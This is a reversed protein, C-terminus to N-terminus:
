GFTSSKLIDDPGYREENEYYKAREMIQEEDLSRKRRKNLVDRSKENMGPFTPMLAPDVAVPNEKFWPHKLADEASIRDEPCYWLMRQLFDLGMDTLYMDGTYSTRPFKDRLRNVNYKKFKIRTAYPLSQWKPWTDETPTGLLKFIKELQDLEGRGPLFPERLLLEAFICGVSWIDIAPGYTKSGLLLEPARYWLTVVTRTYPRIPDGYKRALGFDCVKLIGRNNLLLNSTKLDRHLVWQSHMYAVAQLLQKMLCKIEGQSLPRKLGELLAKLEHDMYEMVMFIKDPTSGVVMEKVNVINEHKLSLLINIERISTIPFGEKDRVLKIKKIAVVEQTENDKARFVIGYSGEDIKNLQAYSEVSRCGDLLGHRLRKKGTHLPIYLSTAHSGQPPNITRSEAQSNVSTISTSSDAPQFRSAKKRVVAVKRRDTSSDDVAAQTTEPNQAEVNIKEDQNAAESM